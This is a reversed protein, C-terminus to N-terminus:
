CGVRLIGFRLDDGFIDSQDPLFFARDSPFGALERHRCHDCSRAGPKGPDGRDVFGYENGPLNRLEGACHLLDCLILIM